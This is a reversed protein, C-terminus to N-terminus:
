FRQLQASVYDSVLNIVAITAAERPDLNPNAKMAAEIDCLIQHANTYGFRYKAIVVMAISAVNDLEEESLSEIYDKARKYAVDAAHPHRDHYEKEFAGLDSMQTVFESTYITRLMSSRNKKNSYNSLTIYRNWAECAKDSINAIAQLSIATINGVMMGLLVETSGGTEMYRDMVPGYVCMKKGISSSELVLRETRAAIDLENLYQCIVAGAYYELASVRSKYNLHSMGEISAPNNTLKRSYLYVALAGNLVDNYATGYVINIPVSTSNFYGNWIKRLFEIDVTLVWKRIEEDVSGAGTFLNSVLEEDSAPGVPLTENLSPISNGKHIKLDDLLSETLLPEPIYVKSISFGEAPDAHRFSEMRTSVAEAYAVVAPKVENRAIAVHRTVNDALQQSLSAVAATHPSMLDSNRTVGTIGDIIATRNNNKLENIFSDTQVPNAASVVAAVPTFPIPRIGVGAKRLQQSIDYVYELTGQNLM